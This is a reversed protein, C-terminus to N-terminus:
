SDIVGDNLEGHVNFKRAIRYLYMYKCEQLKTREALENSVNGEYVAHETERAHNWSKKTDYITSLLQDNRWDKVKPQKHHIFLAM